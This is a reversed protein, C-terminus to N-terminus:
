WRFRIALQMIRPMMDGSAGGLGAFWATLLAPAIFQFDM